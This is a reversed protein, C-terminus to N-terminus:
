REHRIAPRAVPRRNPMAFDVLEYFVKRRLTFKCRVLAGQPTVGVVNPEQFHGRDAWRHLLAVDFTFVKINPFTHTDAVSVFAFQKVWEDWERRNFTRDQGHQGSRMFNVTRTLQRMLGRQGNDDIVTDDNLFKWDWMHEIPLIVLRFCARGDRLVKYFRPTIPCNCLGRALM